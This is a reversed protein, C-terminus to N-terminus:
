KQLWWCCLKLPVDTFGARLRPGASIAPPVAREWSQNNITAGTMPAIIAATTQFYRNSSEPEATYSLNKKSQKFAL